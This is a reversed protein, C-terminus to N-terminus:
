TKKANFQNWTITKTKGTTLFFASRYPVYINFRNKGKGKFKILFRIYFFLFVLLVSIGNSDM